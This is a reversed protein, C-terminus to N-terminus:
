PGVPTFKDEHPVIDLIRGADLPVAVLKGTLITKITGLFLHRDKPFIFEGPIDFNDM